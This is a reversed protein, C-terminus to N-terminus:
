QIVLQQSIKGKNTSLVVMYAGAALNGKEINISQAGMKLDGLDRNHVMKGQINFIFLKASLAEEIDLRITSNETMPNPYLTMSAKLETPNEVGVPDFGDDWAPLTYDCLIGQQSASISRYIGRGHTGIYLAYCLENYFTDPQMTIPNLPPPGQLVDQKLEFRIAHVQVNGITENEPSWTYTYPPSFNSTTGLWVGNDTAVYAKAGSFFPDLAIDFIPMPPLANEGEGQISQFNVTGATANGSRIIYTSRGYNGLTVILNSPAGIGPDAAIATVTQGALEPISESLNFVKTVTDTLGVRIRIVEGTTSGAWVYFPTETFQPYHIAVASITGTGIDGINKWTPVLSADLPNETMWVRGDAGGTILKTQIEGTQQYKNINEWLIYPTVFLAGGDLMDDGSCAPPSSDPVYPLCDTNEDLISTFSDGNNSSRRLEGDPTAAFIINPLIKSIETFGGDGGLVERSTLTSNEAYTVYQTGNDQTGGAVRGDRGAAVSYFQTIGLNKNLPQFTPTLLNANISRFMGGDTGVYMINPNTPHFIVLHKDAHVYNVNSPDEFLNDIPLWGDNSSWSWLTIGALFIRQPNAPDVALALDYGGQCQVSNSMPAFSDSGGSGIEIWVNGGDTSQIVRDLCGGGNLVIVCYLINPDSPSIALEKRGSGIPFAGINFGSLKSFNQGDTARYYDSGITTHVTGNSAIEVDYCPTTTTTPVGTPHSWTAGGDLSMFLGGITAAYVQNANTPHTAIRYLGSWANNAVNEPPSTAPLLQFSNGGDTSKFVGEGPAGSGYTGIGGAFNLSAGEGTGVYIDGNVAQAMAAVNLNSLTENQPHSTWNLGGDDSVYIGGSVAGLYMKQTNDRDILITRTRGGVNNPGLYEWELTNEKEAMRQQTAKRAKYVDKFDLSNTEKNARLTHLYQMAKVIGKVPKQNQQELATTPPTDEVKDQWNITLLVATTGLLFVLSLILKKM